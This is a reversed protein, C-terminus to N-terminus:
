SGYLAVLAGRSSLPFPWKASKRRNCEGCAPRLNCLLHSGGKGLPKVHDVNNAEDGCIWCRGGWVSMRADIMSATLSQSQTGLLRARRRAAMEVRVEPHEKNWRRRRERALAQDANKWAGPNEEAWKAKYRNSLEPNNRNWETSRRIYRDPDAAYYGRQRESHCARCTSSIGDKRRKDKFFGSLPKIEDCV